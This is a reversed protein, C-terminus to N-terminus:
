KAQKSRYLIFITVIYFIFSLSIAGVFNYLSDERELFLNLLSSQNYKSWVVYSLTKGISQMQDFPVLAGALAVQPIILLPLFANAQGPNKSLSSVLLGMGTAPLVAALLIAGLMPISPHISLRTSVLLYVIITQIFAATTPLLLKAAFTQFIGLGKRFESRFIDRESVFERISLSLSFWNACLIIAFAVTWLSSTKSFIQSFLFGIIIPQLILAALKGKDRFWEKLIISISYFFTLSAKKKPFLIHRHNQRSDFNKEGESYDKWRISSEDNLSSLIEEPDTTEFYGYANEPSGYFAQNGQHLVLVKNAIQLAEYSHTTLVVTYGLFSLQKLHSCLIRSNYPDLGSLPEDLVILGPSNMLEQALAVRRMEGGSLTQVFNKRRHGLGFLECFKELKESATNKFESKGQTVRLGNLITEEVTLEKRLAPDQALFATHRRVEPHRYDIGGILVESEKGKAHIGELLRLFTSKGQGSRGIIALIEGAPLEFNLDSLLQKKGTFVDLNKVSLSYGPMCNRTYAFGDKYAIETQAFLLSEGTELVFKKHSHNKEDVVANSFIFEATKEGTKFGKVGDIIETPKDGINVSKLEDEPEQLLLSLDSGSLTARLQHIGILIIDGDSLQIEGDVKTKNLTTVSNASLNNLFWNGDKYTIVGHDRSVFVDGFRLSSGERRGITFPQEKSPNIIHFSAM